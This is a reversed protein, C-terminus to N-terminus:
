DVTTECTTARHDSQKTPNTPGTSAYGSFPMLIKAKIHFIPCVEKIEKDRDMISSLSALSALAGLDDIDGVTAASINNNNSKEFQSRSVKALFLHMTKMLTELIRASQRHGHVLQYHHAYDYM